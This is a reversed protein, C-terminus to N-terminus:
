RTLLLVLLAVVLRRDVTRERDELLDVRIKTHDLNWSRRLTGIRRAENFIRYRGPLSTVFTRALAWPLSTQEVRCVEAWASNRIIWRDRWIGHPWPRQVAGIQLDAVVDTILYVNDRGPIGEHPSELRFNEEPRLIHLLERTGDANATIVLPRRGTSDLARCHCLPRGGDDQIVCEPFRIGLWKVRGRFVDNGLDAPM